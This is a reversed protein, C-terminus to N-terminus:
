HKNNANKRRARILQLERANFNVDYWREMNVRYPYPHKGSSIAIVKGKEGILKQSPLEVQGYERIVKVKDGVKFKRKSM